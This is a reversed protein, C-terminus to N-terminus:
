GRQPKVSKDHGSHSSTTPMSNAVVAHLYSALIKTKQCVLAAKKVSSLQPLHVSHM